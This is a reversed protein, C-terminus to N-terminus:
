EDPRIRDFPNSIVQYTGGDNLYLGVARDYKSIKVKRGGNSEAVLDGEEKGDVLLVGADTTPLKQPLISWKLFIDGGFCDQLAKIRGTSYATAQQAVHLDRAKGTVVLLKGTYNSAGENNLFFTGVFEHFGELVARLHKEPDLHFVEMLEVLVGYMGDQFFPTLEALVPGGGTAMVDVPEFYERNSEGREIHREMIM